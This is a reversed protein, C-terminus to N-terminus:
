AAFREALAIDNTMIAHICEAGPGALMANIEAPDDVTWGQLPFGLSTIKDSDELILKYWPHLFDLHASVDGPLNELAEWTKFLFAYKVKFSSTKKIIFKLIEPSFSSIVIDNKPGYAKIAKVFRIAFSELNFKGDKIELCLGTKHAVLTLAQEITPIAHEKNKGGNKFFRQLQAFTIGAVNVTQGNGDAITTGHMVPIVGDSTLHIDLEIGILNRGNLPHNIVAEFAALSNEPYQKSYGRHAIFNM